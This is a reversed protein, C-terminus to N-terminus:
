TPRRWAPRSSTRARPEYDMPCARDSAYFDRIRDLLLTEMERDGAARAWDLVLGFSFATQNHEGIRIPQTLKPLWTKLRAAAERELPALAEAWARSEATNWERLEVGLQLLWALGYPREFSTRGKGALYRV